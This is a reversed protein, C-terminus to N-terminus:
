QNRGFKGFGLMSLLGAGLLFFTGPEPILTGIVVDDSTNPGGLGNDYTITGIFSGPFPTGPPSPPTGLSGSPIFYELVSGRAFAGTQGVTGVLSTLPAWSGLPLILCSAASGFCVEAVDAAAILPDPNLNFHRIFVNFGDSIGDGLLDGQMTILPTGTIAIGGVGVSQWDLTPPPAYVEILLYIGDNAFLADGGFLNLEQLLVVHSMDTNDFANDAENPDGVELYYPYGTNAWEGVGLSGNVTPVAYANSVGLALIGVLLTLVSLKKM